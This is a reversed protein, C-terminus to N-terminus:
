PTGSGAVYSKRARVKAGSRSVKVSLSHAKGDDSALSFGLLYQRHLEDVVKTFAAGLDENYEVLVHGGGTDEVLKTLEDSLGQGPLGVAYITFGGREAHKQVDARTVRITLTADYGDTLLLIVRRGEEPELATMAADTAAWLPTGGGPWLEEDLIRQLTKKDSTLFPSLAVETGFSGIRARDDATLAGVFAGAAARIRAYDGAMSNSMDFLAAVTIKQPTNDFVTLPQPKGNDFVQFDDRTLDTLLRGDKSQVTAFIEVTRAGSRFRPPQTQAGLLCVCAAALALLRDM